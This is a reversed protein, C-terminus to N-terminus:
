GKLQAKILNQQNTGWHYGLSFPLRKPKTRLSDKYASQLDTQFVGSFDDVPKVYVGYLSVDWKDRPLYKYPIGTDDELITKSKGLILDRFSSFFAYHLL